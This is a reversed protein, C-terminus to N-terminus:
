GPFLDFESVRTSRGFPLIMIIDERALSDRISDLQNSESHLIRRMPGAGAVRWSASGHPPGIHWAKHSELWPTWGPGITKM